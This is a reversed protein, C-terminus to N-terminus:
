RGLPSAHEALLRVLEAQRKTGTKTFLRHLHTKVAAESVGLVDAVSPIGGVESPVARVHLEGPTM